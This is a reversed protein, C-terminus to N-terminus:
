IAQIQDLGMENRMESVIASVIEGVIEKGGETYLGQDITFSPGKGNVHLHVEYFGNTAKVTDIIIAVQEESPVADYDFILRM